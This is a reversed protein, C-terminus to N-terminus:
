IFQTRNAPLNNIASLSNVISNHPSVSPAPMNSRNRDVGSNEVTPDNVNQMTQSAAMANQNEVFGETPTSSESGSSTEIQQGTSESETLSPLGDTDMFSSLEDPLFDKLIPMIQESIVDQFGSSYKAVEGSPNGEEDFFTGMLQDKMSTFQQFIEKGDM